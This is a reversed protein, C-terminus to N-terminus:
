EDVDNVIGGKESDWYTRGKAQFVEPYEAKVKEFTEKDVLGKNYLGEVLKFAVFHEIKFREASM